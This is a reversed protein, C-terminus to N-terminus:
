FHGMKKFLKVYQQSQEFRKLLMNIDAVHAGAGQAIRKKRLGDLIRPYVREKPTMSNIIARFRRMEAEGKEIMEPTLSFSPMGPIYKMLQGLSGMKNMMDMQQAFDELTLSGRAFSRQMADQEHKKIKEEAKEALSQIDGMGLIRGAMRDPHFYEIDDVKEGTGLFVIPKKLSYRFAFSAGCRTDSDVKTLFAGHFGVSQEFAQAVHLSEQGTMSDLVLIKYQPNIRADVNRLEDIMDNDIHLRGATDLFLVDFQGKKYYDVSDCAAQVPDTSPSRYFSVSVQKSLQELQDIAAPRYFDISAMVIKQKKNKKGAHKQIWYAMKALSTTKGSGQLGIVMVVSPFTFSFKKEDSDSLFQQIKDHVIKIFQEDPKLSTLVKQGLVEQKISATFTEVVKYPVDAELLAEKVKELAEHINQETLHSKGTIRSFISSFKESLFDFM